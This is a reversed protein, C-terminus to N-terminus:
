QNCGSDMILVQLGYGVLVRNRDLSTLAGDKIFAKLINLIFFLFERHHSPYLALWLLCDQAKELLLEMALNRACRHDTHNPADTPLPASAKPPRSFKGERGNSQTEVCTHFSITLIITCQSCRAKIM